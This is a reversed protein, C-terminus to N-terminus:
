KNSYLTAKQLCCMSINFCRNKSSFEKSPFSVQTLGLFLSVSESVYLITGDSDALLVFGDLCETLNQEVFVNVDPDEAPLDTELVLNNQKNKRAKSSPANKHPGHKYPSLKEYTINKLM